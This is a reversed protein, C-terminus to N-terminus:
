WIERKWECDRPLKRWALRLLAMPLGTWPKRLLEKPQMRGLMLRYDHRLYEFGSDFGSDSYSCFYSDFHFDCGYYSVLAQGLVAHYEQVAM